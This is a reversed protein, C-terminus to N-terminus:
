ITENGFVDYNEKGEAALVVRKSFKSNSSAVGKLPHFKAVVPNSPNPLANGAKDTQHAAVLSVLRM